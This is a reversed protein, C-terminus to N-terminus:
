FENVSTMEPVLTIQLIQFQHRFDKARVYGWLFFDLLPPHYEITTTTLTISWREWDM